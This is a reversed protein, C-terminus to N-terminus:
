SIYLTQLLLLSTVETRLLSLRRNKSYYKHNRSDTENKSVQSNPVDRMRALSKRSM